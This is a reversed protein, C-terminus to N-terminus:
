GEVRRCTAEIHHVNGHRDFRLMPAGVVELTLTDTFGFQDDGSGSGSGTGDQYVTVDVVLQDHHRLDPNGALFVTYLFTVQNRNDRDETDGGASQPTIRCKVDIDTFTNSRNQNGYADTGFQHRRIVAPTAMLTKM